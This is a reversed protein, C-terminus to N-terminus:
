GWLALSYNLRQPQSGSSEATVAHFCHLWCVSRAHSPGLLVESGLAPVVSCLARSTGRALSRAAGDPLQPFPVRAPPVQRNLKDEKRVQDKKDAIM